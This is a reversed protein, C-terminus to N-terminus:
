IDSSLDDLTDEHFVVQMGKREPVDDPAYTQKIYDLKQGLENILKDIEQDRFRYLKEPDALHKQCDKAFNHFTVHKLVPLGGFIVDLYPDNETSKDLIFIDNNFEPLLHYSETYTSQLNYFEHKIRDLWGEKGHANIRIDFIFTHGVEGEKGHDEGDYFEHPIQQEFWEYVSDEIAYAMFAPIGFLSLYYFKNDVITRAWQNLRVYLDQKVYDPFNEDDAFAQEQWEHYRVVYDYLNKDKLIEHDWDFENLQFPIEGLGYLYLLHENFVNVQQENNPGGKMALKDLIFDRIKTDIGEPVELHFKDQDERSLTFYENYHRMLAQRLISNKM